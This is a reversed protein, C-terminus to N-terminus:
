KKDKIISIGDQLIIKLQKQKFIKKFDDKSMNMIVDKYSKDLLNLSANKPLNIHGIKIDKSSKNMLFNENIKQSSSLISSSDGSSNIYSSSNNNKLLIKKKVYFIRYNGEIKPSPISTLTCSFMFTVGISVVILRIM